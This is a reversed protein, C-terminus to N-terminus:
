FDMTLRTTLGQFSLLSSNIWTEKAANAGAATSRYIEQLNSWATIEYGAFLEVRTCDFNKQWSPGLMAQMTVTARGDRYTANRIPIAANDAGTAAVTTTQKSVNKYCGMLAGVTGRATLYIDSTWFWDAMLGFRFGAGGFKWRNQIRTSEAPNADFYQVVWNQDMWAATIGGLLRLRLHANPHFYRNAMADAVNYNLHLSSSAGTLPLTLTQPWTGTLFVSTPGPKGVSDDGRSTLRTYSGWVEWEKPARFYSVSVRFGPDMGFSGNQYNGQAYSNSPGWAATKMKLAYDLDGEQAKWYLFELHASVVQADSRFLNSDWAPPPAQTPKAFALAPIALCLFKKM